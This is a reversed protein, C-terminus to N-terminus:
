GLRRRRLMSNMLKPKATGAAAPKLTLGIANIDTGTFYFGTANALDAIGFGHSNELAIQSQSNDTVTPTSYSGGAAGVMMGGTSCTLGTVDSNDETVGYDEIPVATDVGKYFVICHEYTDSFGQAAGTSLTQAGSTPNVIYYASVFPRDNVTGCRVVFTASTSGLVPTGTPEAYDKGFIVALTADAPVTCSLSTSTHTGIVATGTREVAM